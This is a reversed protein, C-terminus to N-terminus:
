LASSLSCQVSCESNPYRFTGVPLAVAVSCSITILTQFFLMLDGICHSFILCFGNEESTLPLASRLSDMKSKFLLESLSNYMCFM